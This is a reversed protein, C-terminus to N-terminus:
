AQHGKVGISSRSAELCKTADTVRPRWVKHTNPAHEIPWCAQPRIPIEVRPSNASNQPIFNLNVPKIAQQAQHQDGSSGDVVGAWKVEWNNKHRIGLIIKLSIETAGNVLGNGVQNLDINVGTIRHSVKPINGGLTVAEKFTHSEKRFHGEATFNGRELRRSNVGQQEVVKPRLLHDIEHSVGRCGWADRGEPIIVCDRSKSDGLVTVSVFSGQGNRQKQVV